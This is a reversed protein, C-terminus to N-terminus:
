GFPILRLESAPDSNLSEHGDQTVTVINEIRVGFEGPVYVGPEISFCDHELLAVDSGGVIFPEEHIRLGIGHGTRHVFYQGLGAQAIVERAAHDVSGCTAGPRIASRAAYHAKAVTAYAERQADSATGLGVTRTTDSLYGDVTCGYDMILLHGRELKSAGTEHHPEAGHPGTAVIGFHPHGGRKRMEDSLMHAVDAETMGPRISALVPEMAEDAIKAARRLADLETDDKQRVLRSILDRGPVFKTDAMLGQLHLLHDARTENDVAVTHGALGWDAALERLLGDPGPGDDWPRVDRIGARRAQNASLSPGIFRVDGQSSFACALLRMGGEEALGTLYRMTPAATALFATVGSEALTDALRNARRM